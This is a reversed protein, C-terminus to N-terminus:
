LCSATGLGSPVFLYFAGKYNILKVVATCITDVRRDGAVKQHPPAEYDRLNDKIRGHSNVDM